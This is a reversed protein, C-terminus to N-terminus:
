IHILSLSVTDGDPDTASAKMTVKTGPTVSITDPTRSITPANPASNSVNVVVDYWASYKGYIDKARVKIYTKGVPYYNDSPKNTYEYGSIFDGDSDIASPILTVLYKGDKYQRTKNVSVGSIYPPTNYVQRKYM